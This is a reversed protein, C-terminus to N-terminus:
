FFVSLRLHYRRITNWCVYRLLEPALLYKRWSYQSQWHDLHQRQQLLVEPFMEIRISQFLFIVYRLAMRLDVTTIGYKDNPPPRFTIPFYCFLINFMGQLITLLCFPIRNKKSVEVHESIDFEILIVRAIAFAVMLNRPDKEGEALNIYGAIFRTGM